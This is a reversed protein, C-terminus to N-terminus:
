LRQHLEQWASGHRARQHTHLRIRISRNQRVVARGNATSAQDEFRNRKARLRVDAVEVEEEPHARSSLLTEAVDVGARVGAGDGVECSVTKLRPNRNTYVPMKTSPSHWTMGVARGVMSMLLRTYLLSQVRASRSTTQDAIIRDAKELVRKPLEDELNLNIIVM